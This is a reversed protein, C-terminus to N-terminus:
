RPATSRSGPRRACGSPTSSSAWSPLSTIGASSPLQGTTPGPRARPSCSAADAAFRGELKHSSRVGTAYGYLFVKLTFRPHYPPMGLPEDLTALFPGMDLEDVLDNLFAALGDPDVWDHLSPPMMLLGDQDYPRFTKTRM